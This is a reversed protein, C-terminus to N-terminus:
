RARRFGEVMHRFLPLAVEGDAQPALGVFRYYGTGDFLMAHYVVCPTGAPALTCRGTTEYGALGDAAIARGDDLQIATAGDVNRAMRRTFTEPQGIRGRGLLAAITLRTEAGARTGPKGALVLTSGSRVELPTLEATVPLRFPLGELPTGRAAPKGLTVSALTAVVSSELAPDLAREPVNVTVVATVDPGALALVWKRFPKEGETARIVDLFGPHDLGRLETRSLRQMGRGSLAGGDYSARVADIAGAKLETIVISAGRANDRFGTFGTAPVFGPPVTLAVRSGGPATVSAAESPGSLGALLAALVAILPQRFSM